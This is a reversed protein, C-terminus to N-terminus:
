ANQKKVEYRLSVMLSVILLAVFLWGAASAWHLALSSVFLAVLSILIGIALRADDVLLGWIVKLAKM